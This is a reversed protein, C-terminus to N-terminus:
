VPPPFANLLIGAKTPNMRMEDAQEAGRVGRLTVTVGLKALTWERAIRRRRMRAGKWGQLLTSM